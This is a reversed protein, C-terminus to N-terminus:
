QLKDLQRRHWALYDMMWKPINSVIYLSIPHQSSAATRADVHGDTKSSQLSWSPLQNIVNDARGKAAIMTAATTMENVFTPKSSVTTETATLIIQNPSLKQSILCSVVLIWFFYSMSSHQRGLQGTPNSTENGNEIISVM